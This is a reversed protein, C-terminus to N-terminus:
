EFGRRSFYELCQSRRSLKNQFNLEVQRQFSFFRKVVKCSQVITCDSSVITNTVWMIRMESFTLLRKEMKGRVNEEYSYKFSNKKKQFITANALFTSLM